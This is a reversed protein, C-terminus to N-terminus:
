IQSAKSVFKLGNEFVSSRQHTQVIVLTVLHSSQKNLIQGILVIFIQGVAFIALTPEFHRWISLIGKFNYGSKKEKVMTAFNQWNQDRQNM